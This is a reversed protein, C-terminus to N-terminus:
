KKLETFLKIEIVQKKKLFFSIFIQKPLYFPIVNAVALLSLYQNLIM